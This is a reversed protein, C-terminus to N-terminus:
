APSRSFQTATLLRRSTLAPWTQVDTTDFVTFDAPQGQLSPRDAPSAALWDRRCISQSWLDFAEHLQAATVGLRLADLPDFNGLPHFADQVNDSGILVPIGRQRAEKLLTLGRLRPTRGTQADQLWLNTAPLSVLTIPALAVLDLLARADADSRSALACAHSCVIRGPFGIERARRSITELGSAKPELEEDVHFDLDVGAEAAAHLLRDLAACDHNSSHIFAGAVAHAHAAVQAVLCRAASASDFLTLPALMVCQLDIRDQWAAHLDTYVDWAPPAQLSWWDVHTRMHTVGHSAAMQLALQARQRLDAQSWHRRDDLTAGIAALLGPQLGHMRSRTFAKDLHAHAEVLGPLVLAGALDTSASATTIWATTEPAIGSVRANQVSVRALMPGDNGQPWHPPLLWAPLRANRLVHEALDGGPPLDIIARHKM